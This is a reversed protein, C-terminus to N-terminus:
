GVDVTCGIVTVPGRWPSAKYIVCTELFRCQDNVKSNGVSFPFQFLFALLAFSM